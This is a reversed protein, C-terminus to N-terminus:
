SWHQRKKVNFIPQYVSMNQSGDDSTFCIRDVFFNYDKTILSNLKRHVELHKKNNSTIRKNFNILKSNVDTKTM